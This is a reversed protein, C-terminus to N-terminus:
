RQLAHIIAVLAALCEKTMEVNTIEIRGIKTDIDLQNMEAELRSWYEDLIPEHWVIPEENDMLQDQYSNHILKLDVNKDRTVSDICSQLHEKVKELGIRNM